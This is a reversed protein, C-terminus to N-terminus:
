VGKPRGTTGSTYMIDALDGDGVPVQFPGREGGLWEHWEDDQDVAVVRVAVGAKAAADLVTTALARSTLALVPEADEVIAALEPATLRVNTPVAVAGAKHIGAYSVFWRELHPDEVHLLVRDGRGVGRAALNHGLRDSRDDWEGFTFTSGEAVQTYAPEDGHATAMWRLQDVQLPM